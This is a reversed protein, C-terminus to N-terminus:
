CVLKLQYHVCLDLCYLKVLHVLGYVQRSLYRTYEPSPSSDNYSLLLHQLLQASCCTQTHLRPQAQHASCPHCHACYGCIAETIARLFAYTVHDLDRSSPAGLLCPIVHHTHFAWPRGLKCPTVQAKLSHVILNSHNRIIMLKLLEHPPPPLPVMISTHLDISSKEGEVVHFGPVLSLNFAQCCTDKDLTMEFPGAATSILSFCLHMLLHHVPGKTKLTM